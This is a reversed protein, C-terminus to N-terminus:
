DARPSDADSEGQPDLTEILCMWGNVWLRTGDDETLIFRSDLDTDDAATGELVADGATILLRM